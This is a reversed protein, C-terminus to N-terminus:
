QEETFTGLPSTPNEDSWISEFVMENLVFSGESFPLTVKGNSSCKHFYVTKKKGTVPSVHEFKFPKQDLSFRSGLYLSKSAPPTSTGTIVAVGGGPILTGGPNRFMIGNTYDLIYDDNEVATATGYMVVPPTVTSINYTNLMISQVGSVGPHPSFTGTRTFPAATGPTTNITLGGSAIALNQVNIEAVRATVRATVEKTISGYTKLPVGAKFYEIEYNYEYRVEEKLFGILLGDYWAEGTGMTVSNFNAM